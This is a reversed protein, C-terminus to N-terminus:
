HGRSYRGPSNSICEGCPHRWVAIQSQAGGLGCFPAALRQGDKANEINGSLASELGFSQYYFRNRILVCILM